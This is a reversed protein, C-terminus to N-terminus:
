KKLFELFEDVSEKTLNLPEVPKTLEQMIEEIPLSEGKELMDLYGKEKILRFSNYKGETHNNLNSINLLPFLCDVSIRVIYTWIESDIKRNFFGNLRGLYPIVKQFVQIFKLKTSSGIFNWLRWSNLNEQYASICGATIIARAFSDSFKQTKSRASLFIKIWDIGKLENPLEFKKIESNHLFLAFYNESVSMGDFCRREKGIDIDHLFQRLGDYGQITDLCQLCKRWELEKEQDNENNYDPELTIGMENLDYIANIFLKTKPNYELNDLVEDLKINKEEESMNAFSFNGFLQYFEFLADKDYLSILENIFNKKILDLYIEGIRLSHLSFDLSYLNGRFNSAELLTEFFTSGYERQQQTSKSLGNSSRYHYDLVHGTEHILTLLFDDAGYYRVTIKEKPESFSNRIQMLNSCQIYIGTDITEVAKEYLVKGLKSSGLVQEYFKKANNKVKEVVDVYEKSARVNGLIRDFFGETDSKNLSSSFVIEIQKWVDEFRLKSYLLKADESLWDANEVGSRAIKFLERQKDKVLSMHTMNESQSIDRMQSLNKSQSIASLGEAQVSKSDMGFVTASAFLMNAIILAKKM